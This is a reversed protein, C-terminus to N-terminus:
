VATLGTHATTWVSQEEQLGGFKGDSGNVKSLELRIKPTERYLFSHCHDCFVPLTFWSSCVESDSDNTRYCTPTKIKGTQLVLRYILGSIEKEIRFPQTYPILCAVAGESSWCPSGLKENKPILSNINQLVSFEKSVLLFQFFSFDPRNKEEVENLATPILYQSGCM